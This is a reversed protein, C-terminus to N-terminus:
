RLLEMVRDVVREFYKSFHYVERNPEAVVEKIRNGFVLSGIAAAYEPQRLQEMDGCINEPIGVRVSMELYEEGIVGIGRLKATGGTFVVGGPIEMPIGGRLLEGKILQMMEEVRPEIISAIAQESVDRLERGYINPVTVLSKDSSLAVAALGHREKINRAESVTTRLGIALDNTIHEGGIPLVSAYVPSGKLYVAIDTTGGGIDVLVVGMEREAPTLVAEASLFSSVALDRVKLGTRHGANLLNQIFSTAVAVILMEAELRHGIMGVPDKISDM